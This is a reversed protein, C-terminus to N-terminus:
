SAQAQYLTDITAVQTSGNAVVGVLNLSSLAAIAQTVEDRTVRGMRGVLIVGGCCSAALITDVMGLVPPVDLLVLDYSQEFKAVVERMRRSSLLKAPDSPIPGSTLVAINGRLSSNQQTDIDQPLPANSTLLTSLGQDNPLNLIQHLSPRRLDADILLVRQHLRAASIALGMILTSKGEGALASTVVLSNLPQGKTLLQINQYLLDLSERMSREQLIQNLSPPLERTKRFPLSLMTPNLGEQDALEPIVGLLPVPSQKELEDSSRVASDAADRAFAAIGGLFLGAVVGVLVNRSLNSGSPFGLQPEEVVQWDFGGRAIELGLEQRAKLLERLTERNLEVEPQLRGYAALLKPFRKLAERVQQETSLLSSYRAVAAQLEVQATALQGVLGLDLTNLQGKTLLSEDTRSVLDTGLIRGAEERLLGLLRQRQDVLQQVFPTTDKFRLRQQVLALDNKQVEVLLNQYRSSQSLRASLTAEQPALALQQQLTSYRSRLERIKILSSQKEQQIQQLLAAQTKAEGEPDILEQERRFDELATESRKMKDRIQPLQENIFSLGRGLRLRQQELNYDLYVQKLAKLVRQTKAPDTDTYSIQFIKTTGKDSGVKTDTGGLGITLGSKLSLVSSPNNADLEPYDTQLSKMAKQLLASSQLLSIQTAPDIEVNSDAFDTTKEAKGKYYPEVLLQMSSAYSTTQRSAYYASVGLVITFISAFLFRRRWLVTLIQGYGPDTEATPKTLYTPNM